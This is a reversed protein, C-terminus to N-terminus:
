IPIGGGFVSGILDLYTLAPLGMMSFEGVMVLDMVLTGALSGIVGFGIGRTLPVNSM